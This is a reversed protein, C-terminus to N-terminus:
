ENQKLSRSSETASRVSISFSMTRASESASARTLSRVSALALWPIPYAASSTEPSEDMHTTSSSIMTTIMANTNTTSVEAVMSSSLAMM